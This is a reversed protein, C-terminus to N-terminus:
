IRTPKGIYGGGRGRLINEVFAAWFYRTLGLIHDGLILSSLILMYLVINQEDGKKRPWVWEVKRYKGIMLGDDYVDHSGHLSRFNTEM